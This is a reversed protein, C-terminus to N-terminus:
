CCNEVVKVVYKVATTFSPFKLQLQYKCCSCSNTTLYNSITLKFSAAFNSSFFQLSSWRDVLTQLNGVCNPSQTRSAFFRRTILLCGDVPFLQPLWWFSPFFGLFISIHGPFLDPSPLFFMTFFSFLQGASNGGWSM